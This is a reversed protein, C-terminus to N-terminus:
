KRTNYDKDSENELYRKSPNYHHYNEWKKGSEILTGNKIMRCLCKCMWRYRHIPVRTWDAGNDCYKDMYMLIEDIQGKGYKTVINNYYTESMNGEHGGITAVPDSIFSVPYDKYSLFNYMDPSWKEDEIVHYYNGDYEKVEKLYQRPIVHLIDVGGNSYQCKYMHDHVDTFLKTYFQNEDQLKGENWYKFCLYHEKVKPKYSDLKNLWDIIRDYWGPNFYDDSDIFVLHTHDTFTNVFKESIFNRGYTLGRNSGSVYFVEVKNGKGSRLSRIIDISRDTSGDNYIFWTVPYQNISKYLREITDEANYVPTGILLKYNNM